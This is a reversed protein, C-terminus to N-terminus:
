SQSNDGGSLSNKREQAREIGLKKAASTALLDIEAYQVVESKLAPSAPESNGMEVELYNLEKEDKPFVFHFNQRTSMPSSYSGEFYWSPSGPSSTTTTKPVQFQRSPPKQRHQSCEKTNRTPFTNVIHELAASPQQINVGMSAARHALAYVDETRLYECSSTSSSSSRSCLSLTEIYDSMDSSSSSSAASLDLVDLQDPPLTRSYFSCDETNKCRCSKSLKRSGSTRHKRSHEVSNQTSFTKTYNEPNQKRPLSGHICTTGTDNTPPSREELFRNPLGNLGPIKTGIENRRSKCPVSCSRKIMSLQYQGSDICKAQNPLPDNSQDEDESLKSDEDTKLCDASRCQSLRHLNEFSHKSPSNPVSSSPSMEDTSYSKEKTRLTLKALISCKRGPLTKSVEVQHYSSSQRSESANERSEVSNSRERKLVKKKLSGLSISRTAGSLIEEPILGKKKILLNRPTSFESEDKSKGINEQELDPIKNPLFYPMFPRLPLSEQTSQSKSPTETPNLGTSVLDLASISTVSILSKCPDVPEMPLYNDVRSEPPHSTIHQCSMMEYINESDHILSLVDQTSKNGSFVQCNGDCETSFYTKDNKNLFAVSAKNVLSEDDSPQGVLVSASNEYLQLSQIFDLNAYDRNENILKCKEGSKSTRPKQFNVYNISADPIHSIKETSTVTNKTEALSESSKVTNTEPPLSSDLQYTQLESNLIIHQPEKGDVLVVEVPRKTPETCVPIEVVNRLEHKQQGSSSPQNKDDLVDNGWCPMINGAWSMMKHCVCSKVFSQQFPRTQNYTRPHSCTCCTPVQMDFSSKNKETILNEKLKRPIDYNETTLLPVQPNWTEDKSCEFSYKEKLSEVLLINRPVAYHAYPYVTNKKPDFLGMGHGQQKRARDTPERSITLKQSSSFVDLATVNGTDHKPSGKAKGSDDLQRATCMCFASRKHVHPNVQSSWVKESNGNFSGTPFDVPWEDEEQGVSNSLGPSEEQIPASRPILFKPLGTTVHASRPRDYLNDLCNRPISYESGSSSASSSHSSQSSLSTRDSPRRKVGSVTKEDTTPSAPKINPLWQPTSTGSERRTEPSSSVQKVSTCFQRGCKDCQNANWDKEEDLINVNMNTELRRNLQPTSERSDSLTVSITEVSEVDSSTTILPTTFQSTGSPWRHHVKCTPGAPYNENRVRIEPGYRLNESCADSTSGDSGSSLLPRSSENSYKESYRNTSKPQLSRRCSADLASNARAASRWRSLLKGRSALDFAESLDTAQNTLLIHLGEGKGCCSGGEFCFKGQVVGFRRLEKLPWTGLLKPPVGSTLCFTYDQLHLRAPGCPLKSRAPVHSVQVLYNHEEILNSRIKVQWQILLERSDFALVVVMDSCIVAMTNSEKDLTFSTELGLFKELSLSAKTPANKCREKSDRYLQLHLCDAVPSLKSLVCWRPKWKRGDRYKVSGEVITRPDAM